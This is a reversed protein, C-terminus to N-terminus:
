GLKYDIDVSCGVLFMAFCITWVEEVAMDTISQYTLFQCAETARQQLDDHEAKISAADSNLLLGVMRGGMTFVNGKLVSLIFATKDDSEQESLTDLMQCFFGASFAIELAKQPTKYDDRTSHLLSILLNDTFEKAYFKRQPDQLHPPCITGNLNPVITQVLEDFLTQNYTM